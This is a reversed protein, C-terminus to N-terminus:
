SVSGPRWTGGACAAKSVVRYDEGAASAGPAGPRFHGVGVTGPRRSGAPVKVAAPDIVTSRSAKLAGVYEVGGTFSATAGTVYLDGEAHALVRVSARAGNFRLNGSTAWLGNASTKAIPDLRVTEVVGSRSGKVVVELPSTPWANPIPVTVLAGGDRDAVSELVVAGAYTAEVDEPTWTSDIYDPRRELGDVYFTYDQGLEPQGPYKLRLDHGVWAGTATEGRVELVQM